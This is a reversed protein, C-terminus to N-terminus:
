YDFFLQNSRQRIVGPNNFYDSILKKCKRSLFASRIRYSNQNVINLYRLPGYGIKRNLDGREFENKFTDILNKM